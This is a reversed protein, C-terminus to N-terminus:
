EAATVKPESLVKVAVPVPFMDMLPLTLLSLVARANVMLLPALVALLTVKESATPLVPLNLLRDMVVPDNVAAANPIAPLPTTEIVLLEVLVVLLMVPIIVPM